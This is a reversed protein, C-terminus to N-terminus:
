ELHPAGLCYAAIPLACSYLVFVVSPLSVRQCENVIKLCYLLREKLFLVWVMWRFLRADKYLPLANANFHASASFLRGPSAIERIALLGLM